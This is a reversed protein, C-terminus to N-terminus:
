YGSVVELDIFDLVDNITLCALLKEYATADYYRRGTIRTYEKVIRIASTRAASINSDDFLVNPIYVHLPSQSQRLEPRTTELGNIATALAEANDNLLLIRIKYRWAQFEVVCRLSLGADPFQTFDSDRLLKLAVAKLEHLKAVTGEPSQFLGTIKIKKPKSM